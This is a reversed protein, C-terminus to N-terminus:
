HARSHAAAAMIMVLAVSDRRIYRSIMRGGRRTLCPMGDYEDFKAICLKRTYIIQSNVNRIQRGLNKLTYKPRMSNLSIFCGHPPITPSWSNRSRKTQNSLSARRSRKGLAELSATFNSIVVLVAWREM